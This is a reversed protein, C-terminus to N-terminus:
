PCRVERVRTGARPVGVTKVGFLQFEEEFISGLLKLFFKRSEQESHNNM